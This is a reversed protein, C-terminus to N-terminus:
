RSSRRISRSSNADVVMVHMSRSVYVRRAASDCTLYDWFGEGGLKVKKLLHYNGEAAALPRPSLATTALAALVVACAM